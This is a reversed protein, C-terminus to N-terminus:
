CEVLVLENLKCYGSGMNNLGPLKFNGKDPFHTQRDTQRHTRTCTHTFACAHVCMHVCILLQVQAYFIFGKLEAPLEFDAWLIAISVAVVLIGIIYGM